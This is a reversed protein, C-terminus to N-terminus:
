ARATYIITQMPRTIRGGFEGEVVAAHATLLADRTQPDLRGIESFTAYLRRVGAADLEIEFRVTEVEVAVFGAARLAKIRASTDLAHPPRGDEGASPGRPYEEGIHKTAEHYADDRTDDGFVHWWVAVWGGERLAVRIRALARGEDLWHLSTACVALDYAGDAIVADEFAVEDIVLAPLHGLRARLVAALSPDPEIARLPSAGLEL